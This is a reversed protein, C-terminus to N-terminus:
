RHRRRHPHRRPYLCGDSALAPRRHALDLRQQRFQRCVRCRDAIRAFGSYYSSFRDVQAAIANYYPMWQMRLSGYFDVTPSTQAALKSCYLCSSVAIAIGASITEPKFM